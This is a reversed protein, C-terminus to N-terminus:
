EIIAELSATLTLLSEYLKYRQTKDIKNLVCAVLVQVESAKVLLDKDTIPEESERIGVMM